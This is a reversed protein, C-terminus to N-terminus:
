AASGFRFEFSPFFYHEALEGTDNMHVKLGGHLVDLLLDVALKWTTQAPCAYKLKLPLHLTQRYFSM